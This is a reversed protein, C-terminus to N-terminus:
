NTSIDASAKPTIEIQPEPLDEVSIIESM